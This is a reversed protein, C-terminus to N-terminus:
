DIFSEFATAACHCEKNYLPKCSWTFHYYGDETKNSYLRYAAIHMAEFAAIMECRRVKTYESYDRYLHTSQVIFGMTKIWEDDDKHGCDYLYIHDYEKVKFEVPDEKNANHVLYSVIHQVVDKRVETVVKYNNEPISIIVNTSTKVEM